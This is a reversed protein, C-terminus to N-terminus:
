GEKTIMNRRKLYVLSGGGLSILMCIIILWSSSSSKILEPEKTVWNAEGNNSVYSAENYEFNKSFALEQDEYTLVGNIQYSKNEVLSDFEWPLAFHTETQPALNFSAVESSFLQEGEDDLVQYSLRADSVLTPTNLEIPLRISYYASMPEIYPDHVVFEAAHINEHNIQVGIIRNLEQNFMLQNGSDVEEDSLTKFGIAGLMTGKLEPISIKVKVSRSEGGLLTLEEEVEIFKSLAYQDDLLRSSRNEIEETYQIGMYPSNLANLPEMEIVVEEDSRNTIIFEVEQQFFEGETHLSFYHNIAPDQNEPFVPLVDILLQEAKTVHTFGFVSLAM